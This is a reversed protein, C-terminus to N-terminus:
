KNRGEVMDKNRDELDKFSIQLQVLNLKHSNYKNYYIKILRNRDKISVM